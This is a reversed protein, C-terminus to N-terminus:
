MCEDMYRLPLFGKGGGRRCFAERHLNAYLWLLSSFLLLSYSFSFSMDYTMGRAHTSLETM